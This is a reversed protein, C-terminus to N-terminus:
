LEAGQDKGIPHEQPSNRPGPHRTLIEQIDPPSDRGVPPTGRPLNSDGGPAANPCKRFKLAHHTDHRAGLTITGRHVDHASGLILQLPHLLVHPCGKRLQPYHPTGHEM